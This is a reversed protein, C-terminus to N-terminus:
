TSIVLKRLEEYGVPKTLHEDFGAAIARRRDDPQGYGTVAILSVRTGNKRSRIAQAVEYGNMEPIGIDVLVVSPSFADFKAVGERGNAATEVEHNDLELLIRLSDRVDQQDEIILIRVGAPTPSSPPTAAASEPVPAKPLRITFTSGKGPGDSRVRLTGGHGVALRQVLALGLGLGGATRDLPQKGQVFPEFLTPLLEAAIGEGDDTVALEVWDGSQAVQM